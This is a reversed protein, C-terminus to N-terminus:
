ISIDNSRKQHVFCCRFHKPQTRSKRAEPWKKIESPSHDSDSTLDTSRGEWWTLMVSTYTIQVCSPESGFQGLLWQFLMHSDVNFAEGDTPGASPKLQGSLASSTCIQQIQGHKEAHHWLHATLDIDLMSRVETAKSCTQGMQDTLPGRNLVQWLVSLVLLLKLGIPRISRTNVCPLSCFGSVMQQQNLQDYILSQTCIFDTKAINHRINNEVSLKSKCRNNMSKNM